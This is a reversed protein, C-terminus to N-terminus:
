DLFNLFKPDKHNLDEAYIFLSSYFYEAFFKEPVNMRDFMDTYLKDSLERLVMLYNHLMPVTIRGVYMGIYPAHWLLKTKRKTYRYDCFTLVYFAMSAAMEGVNCSVTVNHLTRMTEIYEVLELGAAVSGGPSDIDIIIHGKHALKTEPRVFKTIPGKINIRVTNPTDAYAVSVAIFLTGFVLVTAIMATILIEIAKSM